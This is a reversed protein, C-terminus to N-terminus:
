AHTIGVKLLKKVIPVMEALCKMGEMLGDNDYPDVDTFVDLIETLNRWYVEFEKGHSVISGWFVANTIVTLVSDDLSDEIDFPAGQNMLFRCMDPELCIAAVYLLSRSFGGHLVVCDFPTVGGSSLLHKMLVVDGRLAAYSAESEADLMNYFRLSCNITSLQRRIVVDFMKSWLWISATMKYERCKTVRGLGILPTSKLAEFALEPSIPPQVITCVQHCLSNPQATSWTPDIAQALLENSFRIAQMQRSQESSLQKAPDM